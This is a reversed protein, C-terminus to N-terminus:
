QMGEMAWSEANAITTKIRKMAAARYKIYSIPLSIPAFLAVSL